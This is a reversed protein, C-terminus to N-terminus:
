RFLILVFFFYFLHYSQFFLSICVFWYITSHHDLSLVRSRQAFPIPSVLGFWVFFIFGSCSPVFFWHQLEFHFHVNPLTSCSFCIRFHSVYVFVMEPRIMKSAIAQPECVLTYCYTLTEAVKINYQMMLSLMLAFMSCFCCFCFFPQLFEVNSSCPFLM